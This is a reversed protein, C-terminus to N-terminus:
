LMKKLKNSIIFEILQDKNKLNTIKLKKDNNKIIKKLEKNTFEKGNHIFDEKNKFVIEEDQKEEEEDQEEQEEEQQEVLQELKKLDNQAACKALDMAHAVHINLEEAHYQGLQKATDLLQHSLSFLEQAKEKNWEHIDVKKMYQEKFQPDSSENLVVTVCM